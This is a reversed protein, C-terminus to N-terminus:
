SRLDEFRYEYKQIDAAYYDEVMNQIYKDYFYSYNQPIIETLKCLKIDGVFYKTDHRISHHPGNYRAVDFVFTEGNNLLITHTELKDIKIYNTIYREEGKIYQQVKHLNGEMSLFNENALLKKMFERFSLEPACHGLFISVARSYPNVVTKIITYGNSLVDQIPYEPAFRIFEYERYDHINAYCDGDDLLHLLDLYCKFTVTCGARPTFLICIKNVSDGYIINRYKNYEYPIKSFFGNSNKINKVRLMPFCTIPMHM